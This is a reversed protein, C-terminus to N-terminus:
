YFSVGKEFSQLIKAEPNLVFWRKTGGFLGPDKKLFGEKFSM